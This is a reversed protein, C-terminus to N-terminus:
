HWIIGQYANGVAGTGVLKSGQQIWKTDNRTFIWAAGKINNNNYGGVIAINGDASLSVSGGKFGEGGVTGNGVLKSGQQIWKTGNRTFIWAAGKSNNDNYGGVIATNGDASLSVSSGQYANGVAGNGVLKSGQQIWKTGNRTFIWAAGKGNNDNNGGIIVTNGDASLSVSSGQYANGVAGTGVLKSGQQTWTTGNRSFIWAAGKSNNDYYGGVIATNCDASLTVSVGQNANGVAGTGVLKTGQQSWTSGSRTFIWVAGYGGRDDPGGVIATNGDASLSVSTGQSAMEAGTGVLKTGQQSWSSGSRTFIWVAGESSRYSEAADCAGGVIATNGDASLSVSTGQSAEGGVAGSGVLKSGQQTNPPQSLMVTFNDVANATGEETTVSVSGSKAGPMVMAVITSGNNSICISPLGGIIITSANQLNAGKITVLTGVSGSKPVFSTITPQAILFNSLFILISIPLFRM